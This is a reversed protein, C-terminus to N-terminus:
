RVAGDERCRHSEVHADLFRLAVTADADLVNRRFFKKEIAAGLRHVVAAERRM